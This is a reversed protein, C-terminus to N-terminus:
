IKETRPIKIIMEIIYQIYKEAKPILSLINNEKSNKENKNMDKKLAELYIDDAYANAGKCLLCNIHNEQTHHKKEM